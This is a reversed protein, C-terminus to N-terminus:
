KRSKKVINKALRAIKYKRSKHDSPLKRRALQRCRKTPKGNRNILKYKKAMRLSKSKMSGKYGGINRAYNARRILTTSGSKLAKNICRMTVKGEKSALRNRKCWKRFAGVTGRAQSRKNAKQIFRVVKRKQGFSLLM